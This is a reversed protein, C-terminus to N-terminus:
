PQVSSVVTRKSWRMRAFHPAALVRAPTLHMMCNFHHLPCERKFCPSCPLDLKLIDADPALPPTFAPSSSGYLAVLPRGVAAAVHMLGSDNSVVVRASAVVDIAEDLTTRGCLNICDEGASRVIEEGLAADNASGVVWVSCGRSALERGLEAYYPAPWRKAPGYEAGPCLVVATRVTDLKLRDLTAIRAGDDVALRVMPLPGAPPQNATALAAYREALLPTAREDLKRMDNLLGWRMEGRYGTRRPIGALFPVLASKLSNPLVIAQDYGAGSLEQALQRRAGLRLEGHSFPSPIGRRVEPMRAVLPLTWAPALVDLALARHRTHLLSFLPQALLTDGIWSPAVVLIKFM